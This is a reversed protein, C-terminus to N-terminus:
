RDGSVSDARADAGLWALLATRSFRWDPGVRRGPLEGAAALAALVDAQVQMLEAAQELTLVEPEFPRFAHHGVQAEGSVSTRPLQVGGAARDGIYREVLGAVLDQKPLRQDLAAQELAQAHTTPIRVFLASREPKDQNTRATM